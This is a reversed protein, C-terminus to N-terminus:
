CLSFALALAPLLFFVVSSIIKVSVPNYKDWLFYVLRIIVMFKGFFKNHEFSLQEVWIFDNFVIRQNKDTPEKNFHATAWMRTLPQVRSLMEYVNWRWDNEDIIVM